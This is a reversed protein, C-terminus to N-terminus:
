RGLEPLASGVTFGDGHITNRSQMAQFAFPDPIGEPSVKMRIPVGEPLNGGPVSVLYYYSYEFLKLSRWASLIRLKQGPQLPIKYSVFRNRASPPSMLSVVLIKAKDPYDNWALAEVPGIVLYERGIFDSFPAQNTVESDAPWFPVKYGGIGLVILALMLVLASAVVWKIASVVVRIRRLMTGSSSEDSQHNDSSM